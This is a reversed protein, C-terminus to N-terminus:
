IESLKFAAAPPQKEHTIAKQDLLSPATDNTLERLRGKCYSGYRKSLLAISNAYKDRLYNYIEPPMDRSPSPNSVLSFNFVSSDVSDVELFLLM